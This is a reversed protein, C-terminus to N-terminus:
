LSLQDVDKDCPQPMDWSGSSLLYFDIVGTVSSTRQWLLIFLAQSFLRRTCDVIRCPQAILMVSDRALRARDYVCCVVVVGSVHGSGCYALLISELALRGASVWM